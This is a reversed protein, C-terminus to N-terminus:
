DYYNLVVFIINVRFILMAMYGYNISHTARVTLKMENM